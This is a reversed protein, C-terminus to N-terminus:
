TACTSLPEACRAEWARWIGARREKTPLSEIDPSPVRYHSGKVGGEETCSDHDTVIMYSEEGASWSRLSEMCINGRMWAL